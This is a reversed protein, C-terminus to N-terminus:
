SLIAVADTLDLGRDGNWDGLAVNGRDRASGDGCPLRAPASQFLFGLLAIAESIDVTRDQTLDGPLQNTQCEDPVGDQDLDASM